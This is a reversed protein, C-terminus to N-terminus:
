RAARLPDSAKPWAQPAAASGAESEWIFIRAVVANAAEIAISDRRQRDIM